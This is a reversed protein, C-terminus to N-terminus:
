HLVEGPSLVFIIHNGGKVIGSAAATKGKKKKKLSRDVTKSWKIITAELSM